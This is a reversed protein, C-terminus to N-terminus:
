KIHAYLTMRPSWKVEVMDLMGWFYKINFELFLSRPDPNPDILEWISDTVSTQDYSIPRCETLIKTSQRDLKEQLHLAFAFDEDSMKHLQSNQFGASCFFVM